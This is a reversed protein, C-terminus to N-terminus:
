KEEAIYRVSTVIGDRFIFQLTCSGNKYELNEGTENKRWGYASIVKDRTDGVRIGKDTSVQDSTLVIKHIIEKGDATVTYIDFGGYRYIKDEGEFGCSPSKYLSDWAGLYEIASEANDGPYIRIENVTFYFGDDKVEGMVCSSSVLVIALMVFAFIRKM